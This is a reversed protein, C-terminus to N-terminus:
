LVGDILPLEIKEALVGRLQVVNQEKQALVISAILDAHEKYEWILKHMDPEIIFAEDGPGSVTTLFFNRANGWQDMLTVGYRLLALNGKYLEDTSLDPWEVPDGNADTLLRHLGNFNRTAGASQSLDNIGIMLLAYNRTQEKGYGQARIVELVRGSFLGRKWSAHLVNLTVPDLKEALEKAHEEPTSIQKWASKDEASYYEVIDKIFADVSGDEGLTSVDLYQECIPALPYGGDLHLATQQNFDM